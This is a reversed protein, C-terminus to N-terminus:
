NRITDNKNEKSLRNYERSFTKKIHGETLPTYLNSNNFLNINSMYRNLKTISFTSYHKIVFKVTKDLDKDIVILDQSSHLKILNINEYGLVKLQQYLDEIVLSCKWTIIDEDLLVKNTTLLYWCHILIVLQQLQMFNVPVDQEKLKLYILNALDIAKM